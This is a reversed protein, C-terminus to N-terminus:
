PKPEKQQEILAEISARARNLRSKITGLPIKDSFVASISAYARDTAAAAMLIAFHEASLKEEFSEVVDQAHQTRRPSM